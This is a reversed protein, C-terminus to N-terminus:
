EKGKIHAAMAAHYDVLFVHAEIPSRVHTLIAKTRESHDVVVPAADVAKAANQYSRAYEPRKAWSEAAWLKAGCPVCLADAIAASLCLLCTM